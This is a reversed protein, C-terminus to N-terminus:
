CLEQAKLLISGDVYLKWTNNNEIFVTPIDMMDTDRISIDDLFRALSDSIAQGKVSKRSLCYSRYTNREIEWM